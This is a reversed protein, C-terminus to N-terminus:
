TVWTSDESFLEFIVGKLCTSAIYIVGVAISAQGIVLIFNVAAQWQRGLTM